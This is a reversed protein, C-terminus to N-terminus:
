ARMIDPFGRAVRIGNAQDDVTFERPDREGPDLPIVLRGDVTRFEIGTPSSTARIGDSRVLEYTALAVVTFRRGDSARVVFRDVERVRRTSM